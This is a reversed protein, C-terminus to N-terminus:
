IMKLLNEADAARALAEERGIVGARVLNRLAMDLTQMGYRAGTQLQSVIQHTKGERILNRIAPTAALIELAAVRGPRDRRPLLQQAIVGELAGALQLRVQQQQHPPFVDIIRDITQAASTTHLTALVLHGTEAATIATAITELDRMEGVLIVDPDERLAARLAAAFSLSDRGIERQNVLSKKHRHVYEIPDELTIIHLRSESNILDIMAALTTSKGSGTPGTVLVLGRPRRALHAVVEPLGLEDFTPIREPILRIALAVTGRQKFANVRFRGVGPIAYSLDSEGVQMFQQFRDGPILQRALAETDGATLVPLDDVGPVARDGLEDAAFLKGHLRFVPPRGATLHVDSAKLEFALKLLEDAHM